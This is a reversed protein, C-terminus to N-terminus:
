IDTNRPTVRRELAMTRSGFNTAKHIGDIVFIRAGGVGEGRAECQTRDMEMERNVGRQAQM